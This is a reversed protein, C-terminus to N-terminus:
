KVVSICRIPGSPNENPNAMMFNTGDITWSYRFSANSFITRCLSRSMFSKGNLVVMLSFERQNPVRWIYEGETYNNKCDFVGTVVNKMNTQATTKAAIKFEKAPKNNEDRENHATLEGQEGTTNLAQEDVKDLKVSYYDAGSPSGATYYTIPTSDYGKDNSRLNRVCRVLSSSWKGSSENNTAMGEESFYNREDYNSAWYLMRNEDKANTYTGLTQTSKNYLRSESSLINEGIWFGAYQAITPAYWRVEDASIEGDGNLDRNRSMCALRLLSNSKLEDWTYTHNTWSSNYIKTIDQLMNNRGNWKDSGCTYNSPSFGKGEEDNTTECGYATIFAAQKRDYFTQIPYQELGYAVNAYVSRTDESESVTNAVYFSRKPVDNVFKDWTRDAYYNENVFCTADIYRNGSSGGTWFTADNANDYLLKLFRDITYLKTSTKGPYDCATGRDSQDESYVSKSNNRGTIAFEIWDTDVGNINGHIADAVTMVDTSNGFTQVRYMYGQGNHKLTQIDKQYFRMVMYEYHSDLTLTKGASGYEMIVGEAGPQDNGEKKAEVIINNVGAVTINYTYNCNREVNYDNLNTATCDGLHIYYTVNATRSTANTKNYETYSGKLVIYTGYVPANTFVKPISKNDDEREQWSTVNNKAQQLNEPLYVIFYQKGSDHDIDNPTFINGTINSFSDENQPVSYANGEYVCNAAMLSGRVAINMIDYSEAKFTRTINTTNAAVGINFRIKGVIRRLKIVNNETGSAMVRGEKDISVTKGDGVTGSMLFASSIQIEDRNNRIFPLALFKDRTFDTEKGDAVDDEDLDIPLQGDGHGTTVPYLGSKINAVAYIYVDGVTTKVKISAQHTNDTKQDLESEKEIKRFGKLKGDPSFIYVYLNNLHREEEATARSSITIDKPTVDSYGLSVTVKEEAGQAKDQAIDQESCSTMVSIIAGLVFLITYLSKTM